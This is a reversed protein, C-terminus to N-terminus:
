VIYAPMIRTSKMNSSPRSKQVVCRVALSWQGVHLRELTIMRVCLARTNQPIRIASHLFNDLPLKRFILHPVNRLNGRTAKGCEAASFNRMKASRLVVTRECQVVSTCGICVLTLCGTTGQFIFFIFFHNILYLLEISSQVDFLVIFCSCVICFLLVGTM